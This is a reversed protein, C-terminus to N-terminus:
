NAPTESLKASRVLVCLSNSGEIRGRDRDETKTPPQKGADSTNVRKAKELVTILPPIQEANSDTDRYSHSYRM